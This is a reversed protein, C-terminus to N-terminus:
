GRKQSAQIFIEKTDERNYIDNSIFKQWENAVKNKSNNIWIEKDTDLIGEPCGGSWLYKVDCNVKYQKNKIDIDYDKLMEEFFPVGADVFLQSPGWFRPNAEIMYYGNANKRVEVMVLGFYNLKHFIRIYDQAIKEKHINSSEAVLISKGNLQQSYNIQSFMYVKNRKSFYYLLYYSDGTIYEQYMFDNKDYEKLFKKHQESTLIIQPSYVKGDDTQYKKPKAVYPKTFEVTLKIREPVLLENNKCIEWFMEKDSISEYISKSVLPVVIKEQELKDKYQLMFRNLSETTPLILVQENKYKSKIDHLIQFIEIKNLEKNKRVCFVKDKYVTKLITDDESSAVIAYRSFKNKVMCRLFALIARQNYGSFIVLM